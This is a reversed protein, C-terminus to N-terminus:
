FINLIINFANLNETSGGVLEENKKRQNKILTHISKISLNWNPLQLLILWSFTSELFNLWVTFWYTIHSSYSDFRVSHEWSLSSLFFINRVRVSLLEKDRDSLSDWEWSRESWPGNWEGKGWPNRLRVLHTDGSISQYISLYLPDGCKMIECNTIGAIEHNPNKRKSSKNITKQKQVTIADSLYQYKRTLCSM